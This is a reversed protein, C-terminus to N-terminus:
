ALCTLEVVPFFGRGDANDTDDANGNYEVLTFDANIQTMQTMRTAMIGVDPMLNSERLYRM